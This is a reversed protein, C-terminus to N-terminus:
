SEDHFTPEPLNQWLMEFIQRMTRAVDSNDIIVAQLDRFGIIRVFTDGVDISNTASYAAFPVIKATHGYKRDREERWVKLSPHDPVIGRLTIGKKFLEENWEISLEEFGEAAEHPSAYFGVYQKGEMEKLRYWLAQRVGHLGEFFLSRSKQTSGLAMAMLEPLAKKAVALREEALAFFEDPSRAEFLQKRSRPVKQVLGKKLLDGLIVYTTPKKLGSKDAVLYASARGLQLLTSYVKAEKENLGLSQLSELIQM